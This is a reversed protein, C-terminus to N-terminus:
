RMQNQLTENETYASVNAKSYSQHGKNTNFHLNNNNIYLKTFNISLLSFSQIKEFSHQYDNTM